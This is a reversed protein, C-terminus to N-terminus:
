AKKERKARAEAIAQARRPDNWRWPNGPQFNGGPQKKRRSLGLKARVHGDNELLDLVTLMVSPPTSNHWRWNDITREPTSLAAALQKRTIDRSEMFDTLRQGVTRM